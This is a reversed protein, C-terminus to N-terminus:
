PSCSACVLRSFSRQSLLVCLHQQRSALYVPSALLSKMARFDSSLVRKVASALMRESIDEPAKEALFPRIPKGRVRPLQRLGTCAFKLGLYLFLGTPWLSERPVSLSAGM